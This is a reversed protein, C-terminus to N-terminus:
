LIENKYAAVFNKAAGQKNPSLYYAIIITKGAQKFFISDFFKNSIYWLYYRYDSWRDLYSNLEPKIQLNLLTLRYKQCANIFQLSIIFDWKIHM